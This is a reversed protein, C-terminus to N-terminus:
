KIKRRETMTIPPAFLLTVGAPAEGTVAGGHKVILDRVLAVPVYPYVTDTPKGPSEAYGDLLPDPFSPYGLEVETYPGYDDRPNCYNGDGAQVSVTYGDLCCVREYSKRKM